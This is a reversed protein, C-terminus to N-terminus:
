PKANTAHDNDGYEGNEDSELLIRRWVFEARLTDCCAAYRLVCPIAARLTDCTNNTNM